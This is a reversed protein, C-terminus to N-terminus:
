VVGQCSVQNICNAPFIIKGGNNKIFDKGIFTVSETLENKQRDEIIESKVFDKNNIINFFSSYYEKIVNASEKKLYYKNDYIIGKSNIIM